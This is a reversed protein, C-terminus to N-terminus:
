EWELFQRPVLHESEKGAEFVADVVVGQRVELVLTGATPKSIVAFVSYLHPVGYATKATAEDPKGTAEELDDTTLTVTREVIRTVGLVTRARQVPMGQLGAVVKQFTDDSDFGVGLWEQVMPSVPQSAPMRATHHSDSDHRQNQAEGSCGCAVIVLVVGAPVIIPLWKM